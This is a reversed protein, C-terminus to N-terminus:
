SEKLMRYQYLKVDLENQLLFDETLRSNTGAKIPKGPPESPSASAQLAPSGPGIGPNPLDRSFSIAVWELIRVRLIEHVSSSPLNRDM